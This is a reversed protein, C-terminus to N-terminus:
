AVTGVGGMAGGTWTFPGTMTLNTPSGAAGGNLGSFTGNGTFSMQQITINANLTVPGATSANITVNWNTAGNGNNPYFGAPSTSWNTPDTWNPQAGGDTWTATGTVQGVAANPLFAISLLVAFLGGAARPRWTSSRYSM